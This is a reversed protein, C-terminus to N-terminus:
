VLFCELLIRVAQKGLEPPPHRGVGPHLGGTGLHLGGLPLSEEGRSASGGGTM